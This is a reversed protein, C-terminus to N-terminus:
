LLQATTSPFPLTRSWTATQPLSTATRRAVHSPGEPLQDPQLGTHCSSGYSRRLLQWDLFSAFSSEAVVAHMRTLGIRTCDRFCTATSIPLKVCSRILAALCIAGLFLLFGIPYYLVQDHSKVLAGYCGWTLFSLFFFLFGYPVIRDAYRRPTPPAAAQASYSQSSGPWGSGATFSRTGRQHLLSLAVNNPSGCRDCQYSVERKPSSM